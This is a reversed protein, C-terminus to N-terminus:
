TAVSCRNWPSYRTKWPVIQSCTQTLHVHRSFCAMEKRRKEQIKRGRKKYRLFKMSGISQLVCIGDVSTEIVVENSETNINLRRPNGILDNPVNM